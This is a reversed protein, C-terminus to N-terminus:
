EGPERPEAAPPEEPDEIPPEEPAEISPEEPDETSPDEPDEAPPPAVPPAIPPAGPPNLSLNVRNNAVQVSIDMLSAELLDRAGVSIAAIGAGSNLWNRYGLMAANAETRLNLCEQRAAEREPSGPTTKEFKDVAREWKDLLPGLDRKEPIDIARGGNREEADLKARRWLNRLM